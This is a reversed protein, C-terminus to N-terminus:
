TTLDLSLLTCLRDHFPAKSVRPSLGGPRALLPHFTIDTVYPSHFKPPLIVYTDQLEALQSQVSPRAPPTPPHKAKLCPQSRPYPVNCGGPTPEGVWHCM